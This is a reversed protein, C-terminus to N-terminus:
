RAAYLLGAHCGDTTWVGTSAQRGRKASLNYPKIYTIPFAAVVMSFLGRGRVPARLRTRSSDQDIIQAPGFSFRIVTAVWTTTGFRNSAVNPTSLAALSSSFEIAAFNGPEFNFCYEGLAMTFAGGSCRWCRSRRNQNGAIKSRASAAPPKVPM